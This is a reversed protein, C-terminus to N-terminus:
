AKLGIEAAENLRGILMAGVASRIDDEAVRIPVSMKLIIAADHATDDLEVLMRKGNDTHGWRFKVGGQHAEMCWKIHGDDVRPLDIALNIQVRAALAPNKLGESMHLSADTQCLGSGIQVGDTGIQFFGVRFLIVL